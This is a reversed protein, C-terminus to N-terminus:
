IAKGPTRHKRCDNMARLAVVSARTQQPQLGCSRGESPSTNIQKVQSNIVYIYSSSLSCM